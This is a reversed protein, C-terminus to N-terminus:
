VDATEPVDQPKTWSRAKFFVFGAGGVLMLVPMVYVLLNFGKPEPALLVWEGYRDLFYAKVEAPTMGEELKERVIARMEQALQSPSDQLSLGQCVVCRLQSSIERTQRDILTEEVVRGRAQIGAEAHAAAPGFAPALVAAIVALVRAMRGTM